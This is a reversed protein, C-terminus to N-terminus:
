ISAQHVSLYAKRSTRYIKNKLHMGVEGVRGDIAGNSSFYQRSLKVKYPAVSRNQGAFRLAIM